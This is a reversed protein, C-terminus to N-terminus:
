RGCHQETIVQNKWIQHPVGVPSAPLSSVAEVLYMNGFFHIQLTSSNNRFIAM